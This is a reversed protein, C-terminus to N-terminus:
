VAAERRSAQSGRWVECAMGRSLVVTGGGVGYPCQMFVKTVGTAGQTVSASGAM